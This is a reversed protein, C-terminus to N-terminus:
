EHAAEESMLLDISRDLHLDYVSAPIDADARLINKGDYVGIDAFPDNHRERLWRYREADRRLADVEAKLQDREAIASLEVLRLQNSIMEIARSQHDTSISLLVGAKAAARVMQDLTQTMPLTVGTAGSIAESVYSRLRMAQEEINERRASM